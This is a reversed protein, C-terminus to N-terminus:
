FIPSYLAGQSEKGQRREEISPLDCAHGALAESSDLVTGMRAYLIVDAKGMSFTNGASYSTGSADAATNWFLFVAGTVDAMGGTNGLVTM